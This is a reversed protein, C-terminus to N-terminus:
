GARIIGMHTNKKMQIKIFVVVVVCYDVPGQITTIYKWVVILIGM